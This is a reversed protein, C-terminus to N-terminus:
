STRELASDNLTEIYVTSLIRIELCWRRVSSLYHDYLMANVDPLAYHPQAHELQIYAADDIRQIHQLATEVSAVALERPANHSEIPGIAEAVFQGLDYIDLIPSIDIDRCLKSHLASQEKVLANFKKFQHKYLHKEFTSALARMGIDTDVCPEYERMTTALSNKLRRSEVRILKFTMELVAKM